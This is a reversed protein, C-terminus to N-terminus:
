HRKGYDKRCSKLFNKGYTKNVYNIYPLIDQYTLVTVNNDIMCQSKEILINKTGFADILWGDKTLYDAKIEYLKNDVLFDPFYLHTKGNTEYKLPYPERIIDVKLDDYYIFFALEWSSDFSINKYYYKTARSKIQKLLIEKNQAPYLVNNNKFCTRKMKELIQKNQAPTKTGFKKINTQQTKEKIFNIKQANDEGYKKILSKKYEQTGFCNVVECGYKKINTFKRKCSSCIIQKNKRVSDKTTKFEKNCSSCICTILKRVRITNCNIVSEYDNFFEM